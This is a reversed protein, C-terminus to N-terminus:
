QRRPAPAPARLLRHGRQERLLGARCEAARRLYERKKEERDSRWYHHELLPVVRDLDDAETRELYSASGATSCAACRSRSARTPSRRPSWTSSCGRRTRRAISPSSTSRGCRRGPPGARRRPQGAGRLRGAADPRPVRPRRREGGQDDPAAGRRRRRHPEPRPTHLSEPLQLDAIADPDPPTSARRSSTTSCSRSTSRTATRAPPSSSWSRTRSRPMRAWAAAGDELPGAAGRRRAGHPGARAGRLGPQREVGLGGGPEAAPRYALVFLVPLSRRPGPSSRSCTGRCSTSGTATRSCRSSPRRTRGAGAPLRALLDELSTKRLKADFRGPSRGLRPDVARRRRELLPARAVLAPDIAALRRELAAIQREGPDDDELGFLRRWIERWVFYPTKTGYAQCEGFAVTHGRRRVNRVFEAVLRSKGMGAEAAIGVVRGRGELADASGTRSCDRAGAPARRPRARVPDQPALRARALRRAVLGRGARGQGQGEPGAPAGLHLGRGRGRPRPRSVYIREARPRPCSGRPSTSRTAWACSRAGCRTATPAAACGARADDRGPDRARRHDERPRAARPGGGRGPGRRGRAGAAVRVRRLPLRGQRGAHAPPRQRRAREHDAPGRPRLRRAERDGRRRPRLRHRRLAPVRPHGAPAGGPVRRPRDAHTRLGRAAAVAPRPGRSAAGAPPRAGARRRRAPGPPGRM